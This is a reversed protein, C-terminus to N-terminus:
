CEVKFKRLSKFFESCPTQKGFIKEMDTSAVMKNKDKIRNLPSYILLNPITFRGQIGSNFRALSFCWCVLTYYSYFIIENQALSYLGPPVLELLM